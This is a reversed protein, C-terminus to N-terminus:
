INILHKYLEFLAHADSLASHVNKNEIEFYECLNRLSYKDIDDRDHLKAFAMTITDIKLYHMKNELGTSKYAYDLFSADFHMNHAVMISGKTKETFIKLAKKLDLANTWDEESYKIVKLSVPDATEIHTPKIKISFEDVVNFIPKNGTWDQEVLIAGIEVLEHVSPDFGTTETDIFALQNKRM